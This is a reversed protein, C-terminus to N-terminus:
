RQGDRRHRLAFVFAVTTAVALLLFAAVMVYLERDSQDSPALLSQSPDLPDYRVSVEKGQPYSQAFPFNGDMWNQANGVEPHGTPLVNELNYRDGLYQKGDVTYRYRITLRVSRRNKSGRQPLQLSGAEVVVGRTTLWNQSAAITAQTRWLEALLVTVASWFALTALAVAVLQFTTMQLPHKRPRPKRAM